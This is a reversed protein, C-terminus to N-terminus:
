GIRLAQVSPAGTVWDVSTDNVADDRVIRLLVPGDFPGASFVAAAGAPEVGAANLIAGTVAAGASNKLGAGPLNAATLAAWNSGGDRSFEVVDIGATGATGDDLQIIIARAAGTVDLWDASETPDGNLDDAAVLEHLAGVPTRISAM